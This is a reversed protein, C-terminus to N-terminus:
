PGYSHPPKFGLSRIFDYLRAVGSAGLLTNGAWLAAIQRTVRHGAGRRIARRFSKSDGARLFQFAWRAYHASLASDALKRPIHYMECIREVVSILAPMWVLPSNGKTVSQKHIRYFGSVKEVHEFECDHTIRLWLDYDEGIRLSPEFVGAKQLASRRVMLTSICCIFNAHLLKEFVRGTPIGRPLGVGGALPHDGVIKYNSAVIGCNLNERMAKVERELKEPLWSDDSDLFAIFEGRSRAIGVNRSVAPLGSNEQRFYRLREDDFSEVVEKTDDTSGDDIVHLDFDRFTQALVSRIAEGIFAGQNYAPIVVSVLAM